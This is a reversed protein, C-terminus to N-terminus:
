NKFAYGTDSNGFECEIDQINPVMHYLETSPAMFGSEAAECAQAIQSSSFELFRLARRLGGFSPSSSDASYLTEYEVDIWPKGSHSLCEKFRNVIEREHALHKAVISRSVPRLVAADRVAKAEESGVHWIQTQKAIQESLVRRLINKRTLFVVKTEPWLLIARNHEIQGTFPWGNPHWVHKFGQHLALLESIAKYIDDYTRGGSAQPERFPENICCGPTVANLCNVLTTSGCRALSYIIYKM